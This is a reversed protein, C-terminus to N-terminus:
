CDGTSRNPNTLRLVQTLEVENEILGDRKLATGVIYASAGTFEQLTDATVGSGVILPAEPVAYKLREIDVSNTPAGTGSGSVILADALGRSWADKAEQELSWKEDFPTAHKVGVDALIAVDSGLSERLRLTESAQGEILGQDTVMAGIHVNVRIFSAGTATAISLASLADNRLVNVGVPLDSMEVIERVIRTMSAVTVVDVTKQFPVDGFNEILIADVGGAILTTADAIAAAEVADFDGGFGPSSPLAKLHIM